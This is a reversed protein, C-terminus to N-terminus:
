LAKGCKELDKAKGFTSAMPCFFGICLSIQKIQM